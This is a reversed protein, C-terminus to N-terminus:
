KRGQLEVWWNLVVTIPADNVAASSGSYILFKQGDATADYDSEIRRDIRAQFLAHPIGANIGDGGYQIDVAMLNFKRDLYFLEKGDGRWHPAAGGQISIQWKGKGPPLPEVYVEDQGSEVSTYSVYKGDPSLQGAYANESAIPVPTGAANVPFLYLRGSHNALIHQGDATWSELRTVNRALLQEPTAGNADKVFLGSGARIFAIRKGDPSWLPFEDGLVDTGGTLRTSSGRALDALWISPVYGNVRRFAVFKGDPSIRLQETLFNESFHGTERGSRNFWILLGGNKQGTGAQYALVGAPSVGVSPRIAPSAVTEISDVLVHPAGRVSGSKEDFERAMLSSQDLYLLYTKGDPVPALIPASVVNALVVKRDTSGLSALEIRSLGDSTLAHILFRRGDSLFAPFNAAQLDAAKGDHGFVPEARGGDASIRRIQQQTFLIDGFQNWTGHWPGGLPTLVRPAGGALDVRALSRDSTFALSRGDPAWFPHLSNETGPLVRSALSNLDRLHIRDIGDPGHVTYAIAHGDPSPAPTGLPLTSGPPALIQFRTVAPLPRPRLFMWAALAAAILAFVAAAIYAASSARRNQSSGIVPEVSELLEQWDGIDRLRKEPNKQLCKTLLRRVQQPVPTLNPESKVVSALTETLDEGEFLQKGTILEYLVVGFAWIDARKDVAKGRAQEPAMYAATGLIVGVLTPSQILTPSDHLVASEAIGSKALGFDLVKVSGDPRIKINGPKLDRHVINKEHAADLADAIQRAIALSEELPIPGDEKIRDALTPGEILEMVLYNPGVDFLTCINPHNLSSIAIAERQFRDNFEAQSFKIAVERNLRTDRARWVEGMGGKGITAILEYPGVRQAPAPPSM